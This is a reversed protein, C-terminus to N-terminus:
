MKVPLVRFGRLTIDLYTQHGVRAGDLWFLITGDAYGTFIDGDRKHTFDRIPGHHKMAHLFTHYQSGDM